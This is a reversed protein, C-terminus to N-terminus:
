ARQIWHQGDFEWLDHPWELPPNGTPLTYGGLLVLRGRDADYTILPYSRGAPGGGICLKTWTTGDWTWTAPGGRGYRDSENLLEGFMVVQNRGGHYMLAGHLPLESTGRGNPLDESGVLLTRWTAGDFLWVARPDRAYGGPFFYRVIEDRSVDYATEAPASRYFDPASALQQWNGDSWAWVEKFSQNPRAGGGVMVVRKRKNDYILEAQGRAQPSVQPSELRWNIGDWSWTEGPPLSQIRSRLDIKTGFGIIRAEGADFAISLLADPSTVPHKQTWAAGNWTWTQLMGPQVAALLVTEHRATDFAISANNDVM